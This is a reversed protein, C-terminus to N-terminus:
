CKKSKSYKSRMTKVFHMTMEFDSTTNFDLM